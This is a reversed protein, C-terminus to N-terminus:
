TIFVTIMHQVLCVMPLPKSISKFTTSTLYSKTQFWWLQPLLFGGMHNSREERKNKRRGFSGKDTLRIQWSIKLRMQVSEEVCGYKGLKGVYIKKM